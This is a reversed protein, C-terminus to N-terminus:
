HLCAVLYPRGAISTALRTPLQKNYIAIACCAACLRRLLIGTRLQSLKEGKKIVFDFKRIAYSFTYTYTHTYTYM